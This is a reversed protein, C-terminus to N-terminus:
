ADAPAFERAVGAERDWELIEPPAADDAAHRSAIRAFTLHSEWHYPRQVLTPIWAGTNVLWTQEEALWKRRAIHSHGLLLARLPFHQRQFCQALDVAVRPMYDLRQDDNVVASWVYSLNLLGFTALFYRAAQRTKGPRTLQFIGAGGAALGLVTLVGLLAQDVLLGGWQQWSFYARARAASHIDAVLAAPLGCRAHPDFVLTQAGARRRNERWVEAWGTLLDRGRALFVRLGKLPNDAFMWGFARTIPRVNDIYPYDAELRNIVYRTMLMGDPMDLQPPPDPQIPDLYNAFHNAPEYQGGHEVYIQLYADYYFWPEFHMHARVAEASLAPADPYLRRYARYACLVSRRAEARVEAWHLEADHNGKIFLVDNGCAIFWGLAAFFHPHGRAIRRMKWRAEAPTSKLGFRRRDADLEALTSVACVAQLEAGEAPLCVVQEFDFTDGNFIVLWPHGGYRPEDRLSQHLRLLAFLDDDFHFDERPSYQQTESHWGENLHLDSMVLVNKPAARM